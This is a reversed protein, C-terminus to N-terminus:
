TWQWLHCLFELRTALALHFCCIDPTPLAIFEKALAAVLLYVVNTSHFFM